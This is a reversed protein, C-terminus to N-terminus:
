IRLHDMPWNYYRVGNTEVYTGDARGWFGRGGPIVLNNATDVLHEIMRPNLRLLDDVTAGKHLNVYKSFVEVPIVIWAEKSVADHVSVYVKENEVFLNPGFVDVHTGLFIGSRSPCKHWTFFREESGRRSEEGAYAPNFVKLYREAIATFVKTQNETFKSPDATPLPIIGHHDPIAAPISTDVWIPSKFEPDIKKSAEELETSITSILEITARAAPWLYDRLAGEDTNPYSIAKAEYLEQAAERISHPSLKKGLDRELSRYTLGGLAYPTLYIAM